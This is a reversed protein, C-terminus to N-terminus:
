DWWSRTDSLEDAKRNFKYWDAIFAHDELAEECSHQLGEISIRVDDRAKSVEYGHAKINYQKWKKMFRVFDAATPSENQRESKSLYKLRILKEVVSLSMETFSRVGGSWKFRDAPKEFSPHYNLYPIILKERKPIENDKDKWGKSADFAM